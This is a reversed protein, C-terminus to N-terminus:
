GQLARLQRSVCEQLHQVQADHGIGQEAELTPSIRGRAKRRAGRAEGRTADRRAPGPRDWRVSLLQSADPTTAAAQVSTRQCQCTAAQQSPDVITKNTRRTRMSTHETHKLMNQTDPGFM